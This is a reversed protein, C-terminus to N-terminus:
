RRCSTVTVTLKGADNVEAEFKAHRHRSSFYVDVSSGSRSDIFARYGTAPTVGAIRLTHRKAPAVKVWGAAGAQFSTAAKPYAVTHRAVQCSASAAQSAAARHSTAASASTAAAIGVTATTAATVTSLGIMALRNMEPEGKLRATCVIL